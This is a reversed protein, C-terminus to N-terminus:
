NMFIVSMGYGLVDNAAGSTPSAGTVKIVIPSTDVQTPLQILPGLTSTSAAIGSTVAVQANSSGKTIRARLQWEVGSWTVVGTSFLTTTGLWIKITKNNGNTATTGFAEVILGRGVTDLSSAPLTYIFLTDDTIDAGNGIAGAAVQNSLSGMPPFSGTGIAGANITPPPKFLTAGTFTNTGSFTNNGTFDNNASPGIVLRGINQAISAIGQQINQVAQILTSIGFFGGGGPTGPAGGM